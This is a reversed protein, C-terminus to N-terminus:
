SALSALISSPPCSNPPLHVACPISCNTIAFVAPFFFAFVFRRRFRSGGFGGRLRCLRLRLLPGGLFADHRLDRARDRAGDGAHHWAPLLFLLIPRTVFM